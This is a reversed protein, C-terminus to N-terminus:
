INKYTKITGILPQFGDLIVTIEKEEVTKITGILPQFQQKKKKLIILQFTKITGILPQFMNPNPLTLYLMDNNKDDRYPTSVICSGYAWLINQKTKITGILSQFENQFRPTKFISLNNKDDRHPTSVLDLFLPKQRKQLLHIINGHPITDM